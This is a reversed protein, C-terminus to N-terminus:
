RSHAWGPDFILTKFSGSLQFFSAAQRQQHQQQHQQQQQQQQLCSRIVIGGRLFAKVRELAQSPLFCPSEFQQVYNAAPAFNAPQARAQPNDIPPKLAAHRRDHKGSSPLRGLPSRAYSESAATERTRQAAPQYIHIFSRTIRTSQLLNM